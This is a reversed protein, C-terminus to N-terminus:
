RGGGHGECFHAYRQVMSFQRHGLLAALEGLTAGNTAFSSAACQRLDHIRFNTIGAKDLALDWIARISLLETERRPHHRGPFVM